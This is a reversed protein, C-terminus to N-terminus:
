QRPSFQGLATLLYECETRIERHSNDLDRKQAVTSGTRPLRRFTQLASIIEKIKEQINILRARDFYSLQDQDKCVMFVHDNITELLKIASDCLGPSIDKRENFLDCINKKVQQHYQSIAKYFEDLPTETFPPEPVIRDNDPTNDAPLPSPTLSRAEAPNQQPGPIDIKALIEFAFASAHRAAIQQFNGADAEQKGEILDSIGRIILVDIHPYARTARFLGRGEMEVAVADSFHTRLLAWSTFDTSAIVQDGSAIPAVFVRPPPDPISGIIRKLWDQKKADARARQEMRFTSNGIDPRTEFQIGAKGSEYGYVKTAAVVDGLAVDKLGGAVGVFLVIIPNFHAIAREAALATDANGAGVEVIGIDWFVGKNSFKGREYVTGLHHMEERIEILHAHVAQYEVPIATLIVACRQNLGNDPM